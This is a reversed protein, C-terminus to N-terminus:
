NPGDLGALERNPRLGGRFACLLLVSLQFVSQISESSGASPRQANRDTFSKSDKGFCCFGWMLGDVKLVQSRKIFTIHSVSSVVQSIGNLASM